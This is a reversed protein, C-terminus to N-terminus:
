DASLRPASAVCKPNALAKRVKRVMSWATQYSIDLQDAIQATTVHTEQAVMYIVAFWTKIDTRTKEFITGVILTTQSGCLQCEYLPNNRTEIVYCATHRCKACQFGEPWKMKYLYALCSEETLFHQQYQSFTIVPQAALVM